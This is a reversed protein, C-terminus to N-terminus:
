GVLTIITTFCTLLQRHQQDRDRHGDSAMSFAFRDTAESM